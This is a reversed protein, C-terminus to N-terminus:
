WDKDKDIKKMMKKNKSKIKKIKQKAIDSATPLKEFIPRIIIGQKTDLSNENDELSILKLLFLITYSQFFM